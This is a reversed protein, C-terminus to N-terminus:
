LLQVMSCFFTLKTPLNLQNLVNDSSNQQNTKTEKFKSLSEKIVYFGLSKMLNIL